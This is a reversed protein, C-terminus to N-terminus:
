REINRRIMQIQRGLDQNVQLQESIKKWAHLLTSHTKGGFSSALKVLSDELMEKALYMAVQRAFAINKLRSDGKLDSLRVDYAAAVSQLIADVSIKKQAPTQVLENLIREASEISLETRQYRAHACLRNIAGELQRVNHYIHEAIFFAVDNSISLGKGEAKHKIIAVRTELDPIDM